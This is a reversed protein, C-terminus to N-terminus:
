GATKPSIANMNHSNILPALGGANAGAAGATAYVADCSFFCCIKPLGGQALRGVSPSLRKDGAACANQFAVLPLQRNAAGERSCFELPKRAKSM